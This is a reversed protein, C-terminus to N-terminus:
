AEVAEVVVRTGHVETVRVRQGTSLAAGDSVVQVIDDGFRVKGSPRLPTTAVGIAGQLNSYDALREALEVEAANPTEMALGRLLPVHPFLMRMAVFGLIAGLAGGLAMWLGRTLEALQYANQPIVFTQSMLVVGLVTMALGGVGFVGFGPVVFIEIAICILGLGFLILELWEATGALFKMWFYLAFCVMSIFGPVSLGPANAEASLTIFGIFLLLFALGHNRGLREVFRVIKRDEVTPPLEPLGIKRAADAATAAEGDALGLAIAEAASLGGSLDIRDGREWQELERQADDVGVTLDAETAYRVRGTKRHTFRYVMLEPDLLGRILAAPRRVRQAVDDILEVYREVDRPSISATGQGGLRADPHMLLPRCAVAILASDGRAENNVFGAVRRLPPEPSAFWASLLASEGLDGGISDLLVLWTNFDGSALTANLNSQWRRVRNSAIVGVIELLVGKAEGEGRADEVPRLESMDLLEAAQDRSEVVGAAIRAQRLQRGTIRLPSAPQSWVDERLVDGADRLARLEEGAAFVQGGSVKSVFALELTPDALASVVPPPFLGRRQALSRYSLVITDDVNSEGASADSLEATASVLLTDSALIPLLSHGAVKGEVWSVVRLNRLEPQTIARSVRLADEFQTLEGRDTDQGYRLVVTRRQSGPASDSLTLLQALLQRSAREDLPVPVDIVYGVKVQTDAAPSVAAATGREQDQSWARDAVCCTLLGLLALGPMRRGLLFRRLLWLCEPVSKAFGRSTRDHFRELTLIL